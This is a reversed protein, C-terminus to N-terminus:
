IFYQLIFLNKLEVNFEDNKEYEFNKSRTRIFKVDCLIVVRMRNKNGM